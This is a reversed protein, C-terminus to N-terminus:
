TQPDEAALAKYAKRRRVLDTPDARYILIRRTDGEYGSDVAQWSEGQESTESSM